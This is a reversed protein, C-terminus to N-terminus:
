WVLAADTPSIRKHVITHTQLNFAIPLPWPPYWLKDVVWGYKHSPPEQRRMRAQNVGRLETVSFKEILELNQNFIFINTHIEIAFVKQEENWAPQRFFWDGSKKFVNTTKLCGDFDLVGLRDHCSSLLVKAGDCIVQMSFDRAAPFSIRRSGGSVSLLDIIALNNTGAWSPDGLNDNLIVVALHKEWSVDFGIITGWSDFRYPRIIGPSSYNAGSIQSVIRPESGDSKSQCLYVRTWDRQAFHEWGLVKPLVWQGNFCPRTDQWEQTVTKLFYALERDPSINPSSYAVNVQPTHFHPPTTIGTCTSFSWAALM